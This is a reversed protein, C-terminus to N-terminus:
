HRKGRRNKLVDVNKNRIWRLYKQLPEAEQLASISRFGRALEQNTFNLHITSHCPQCLNVTETHKGGEQKPLLHHRTVFSVDRNCLGCRAMEKEKKGM